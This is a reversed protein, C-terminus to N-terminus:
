PLDGLWALIPQQGEPLYALEHGKGGIMQLQAKPAAKV